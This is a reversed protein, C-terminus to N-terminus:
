KGECSTKPKGSDIKKPCKTVASFRCSFLLYLSQSASSPSASARVLQHVSDGVSFASIPHPQTSVDMGFVLPKQDTSSCLLTSEKSCETM